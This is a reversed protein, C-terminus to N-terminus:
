LSILRQARELLLDARALHPALVQREHVAARVGAGARDVGRDAAVAAVARRVGRVRVARALRARMELDLGGVRAGRQQPDPELRPARVLDAHVEGGDAM